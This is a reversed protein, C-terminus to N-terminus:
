SGTLTGGMNISVVGRQNVIKDLDHVLRDSLDVRLDLGDHYPGEVGPSSKLVRRKLDLQESLIAQLLFLDLTLSFCDGENGRLVKGGFGDKIGKTRWHGVLIGLPIGTCTVITPILM